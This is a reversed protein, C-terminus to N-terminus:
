SKVLFKLDLSWSFVEWLVIYSGVMHKVNSSADISLWGSKWQVDMASNCLTRCGSPGQAHNLLRSDGVQGRFLNGWM